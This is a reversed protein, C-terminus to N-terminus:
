IDNTGTGSSFTFWEPVVMHALWRSSLCMSALKLSVNWSPIGVVKQNQRVTEDVIDKAGPLTLGNGLWSSRSVTKTGALFQLVSPGQICCCLWVVMQFPNSLNQRSAPHENLTAQTGFFYKQPVIRTSALYKKDIGIGGNLAMLKGNNLMLYHNSIIWIGIMSM